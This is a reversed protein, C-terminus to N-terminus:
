SYGEVSKCRPRITSDSRCRGWTDPVTRIGEYDHAIGIMIIWKEAVTVGEYTWVPQFRTIGLMEMDLTRAHAKLQVTWDEASPELAEDAVPPLETALIEARVEREKDIHPDNANQTYFWKQLEGHALTDPDHWYIPSEM